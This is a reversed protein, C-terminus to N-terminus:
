RNIKKILENAKERAELDTQFLEELSPNKIFDSKELMQEVVKSMQLFGIEENLFSKVVVENAANLVCPKNGGMKMAEFALALNSFKKTDPLEFDLHKLKLLDLQKISNKLRNPYTLAFQIPIRMDPQSLQAKVSSDEFYVMSHIISQPHIVVEIQEPKLDFLWKAEIMELGKNMMSASDITVKNGMNWNPHNLAQKATVSELQKESFGLFPGGSATLLIKNIPNNLEGMLCQFIASHESDVPVIRTSTRLATESVINGAVVLCEKNALAVTKKNELAALVPKLASFGVIAMLVIDISDMEVVQEIAKSGAYIQIDHSDLADFVNNYHDDNGIVVVNPKYKLAQQILLSWNNNATLVEVQFKDPHEDVIQLAQTGISGTSGLIAIKKKL